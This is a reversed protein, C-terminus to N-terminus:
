GSFLDELLQLVSKQLDRLEKKTLRKDKGADEKQSKESNKNDLVVLEHKIAFFPVGMGRLEGDIARAMETLAKYIKKDYNHLEEANQATLSSADPTNSSNVHGGLSKLLNDVTKKGEVRGSLKSVLAERGDWWQREHEHQRKILKRIRATVAENQALTFTVYKQAARWDAITSPDASPSPKALATKSIPTVSRSRPDGPNQVGLFQHPFPRPQPAPQPVQQPTFQALSRLISDLEPDRPASSSAM